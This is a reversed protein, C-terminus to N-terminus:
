QQEAILRIGELVLDPEVADIRPCHPKLLDSFGGTAVVTMKGELTATMRRLIGEIMEVAGFFVGAQIASQTTRGVVEPPAVLEVRPLLAASRHLAEVATILGPAILGGRYVADASIVDFVTATGLDVVVLPGGYKEFAAVAGCLRDAGVSSPPDYDIRLRRIKDWTIVLPTMRLRQWTMQSYASTLEPVVSSIAVADVTAVDIAASQLFQRLFIWLEDSTRAVRTAMRWHETLTAGDFLGLTTHTNGADVALLRGSV